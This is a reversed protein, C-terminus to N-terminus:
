LAKATVKFNLDMLIDVAQTVTEDTVIETRVKYSSAKVYADLKQSTPILEIESVNGPIEELHALLIESHQDTSIYVHISKLFSFTKNAPNTIGLKVKQLKIDKVLSANTNNNQFSQNSNTTIDPTAIELPLGSIPSSSEVRFDTQHDISFTLLDNVENCGFLSFLGGFLVSAIIKRKM